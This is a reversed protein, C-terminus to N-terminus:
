MPLSAKTAASTRIAADVVDLSLGLSTFLYLMWACESRLLGDAFLHLVDGPDEGPTAHPLYRNADGCAVNLSCHPLTFTALSHIM